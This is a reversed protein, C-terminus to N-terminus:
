NKNAFGAKGTMKYAALGGPPVNFYLRYYVAFSRSFTHFKIFAHMFAAKFAPIETNRV